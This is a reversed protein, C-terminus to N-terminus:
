DAFLFENSVLLSHALIRWGARADPGAESRVLQLALTAEESTPDRLLVARYLAQLAEGDPKGSISGALRDAQGRVFPSNLFYLGQTPTITPTRSEGHRNPDPFDFLRLVDAQRQRSVRGYMTRR